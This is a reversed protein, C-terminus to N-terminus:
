YMQRIWEWQATLGERLPFQPSYGLINKAKSINASTHRADGRAKELYNKQLPKGIITEIESIVESLFLRSGGGINFIEGIAEQHNAALLNATVIDKIYTFDRTQQGDGYIPISENTIAAKFFKHFAMDPRQRPGYVSFYRLSVVPLDFNQWYLWCLREAALKTIGYPSIPQPPIAEDTPFTEANGYISSTSAYIFRVLSADKAAELIIQTANINRQTYYSFSQGWSARVGAQAAQHYIFEVGGVLLSKWDLDEIAIELLRFHPYKQLAKVNHRKFRTDYYDNFNDVGIVSDGRQLLAEALHSGIFGAVGTVVALSM